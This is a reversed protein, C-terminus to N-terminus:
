ISWYIGGPRFHRFQIGLSKKTRKSMPSVLKEIKMENMIQRFKPIKKKTLDLASLNITKVPLDKFLAFEEPSLKFGNWVIHLHQLSKMKSLTKVFDGVNEKNMNFNTKVQQIPLETFKKFKIRDFKLGNDQFEFCRLYKMQRLLPVFKMLKSVKLQCRLVSSSMFSINIDYRVFTDIDQVTFKYARINEWPIMVGEVNRDSGDSKHYDDDQSKVICPPFSVRCNKMSSIIQCLKEVNADTFQLANVSIESIYVKGVLAKLFEPHWCLTKWHHDVVLETIM